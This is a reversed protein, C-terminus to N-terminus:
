PLEPWAPFLCVYRSDALVADALTSYNGRVEDPTVIDSRNFVKLVETEIQDFSTADDSDPVVIIRCASQGGTLSM